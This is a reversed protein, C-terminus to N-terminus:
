VSYRGYEPIPDAPVCEDARSGGNCFGCFLDTVVTSKVSRFESKM